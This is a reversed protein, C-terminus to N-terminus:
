FKRLSLTCQMSLMTNTNWTLIKNYTPEMSDTLLFTQEGM